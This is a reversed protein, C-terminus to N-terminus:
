IFECLEKLFQKKEKQLKEHSAVLTLWAFLSKKKKMKMVTQLVNIYLPCTLEFKMGIICVREVIYISLKTKNYM